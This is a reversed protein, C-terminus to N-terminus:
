LLSSVTDEFLKASRYKKEVEGRVELTVYGQYDSELLIRALSKYDITGSGLPCHDLLGESTSEVDHLHISTIRSKYYDYFKEVSWGDKTRDMHVHGADMCVSYDGKKLLVDYFSFPMTTNEIAIKSELIGAKKAFESLCYSIIDLSIAPVEDDPAQGYFKTMFPGTVHSVYTIPSLSDTMKVVETFIDAYALAVEKSPFSIDINRFPLHISCTFGYKDQLRAINEIDNKALERYLLVNLDTVLEIHKIDSPFASEVLSTINFYDWLEDHTKLSDVNKENILSNGLTIGIRNNM